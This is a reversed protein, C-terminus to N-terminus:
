AKKYKLYLYWFITLPYKLANYIFQFYNVFAPFISILKHITVGALVRSCIYEKKEMYEPKIVDILLVYRNLNTYNFANHIYADCFVVLKGEKWPRIEDRVKLGCNPLGEPIKLGLHCRYTTNTDGSHPKIEANPELLNFSAGVVGPIRRIISYTIPFRDCNQLNKRGWFCFGLTKWTDKKSQLESAFYPKLNNDHINFLSSMEDEIDKFSNEIYKVWEIESNNYFSPEEGVYKNFIPKNQKFKLNDFGFWIDYTKKM